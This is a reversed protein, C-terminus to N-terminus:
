QLKVISTINIGNFCDDACNDEVFGCSSIMGDNKTELYVKADKRKLLWQTKAKEYIEDLTMTPYGNTHSNLTSADETWQEVIVSTMNGGPRDQPQTYVYSREDVRGNKVTIVTTNTTGVWSGSSVTYRYSNGSSSKFSQWAKYSRDFDNEYVIDSKKCSAFSGAILLFLIFITQNTKM